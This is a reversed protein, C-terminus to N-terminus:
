SSWVLNSSSWRKLTSRFTNQVSWQQHQGFSKRFYKGIQSWQSIESSSFSLSLTLQIFTIFRAATKLALGGHLEAQGGEGQGRSPHPVPQQRRTEQDESETEEEWTPLATPPQTEAQVEWAFKFNKSNKDADGRWTSGMPRAAQFVCITLCLDRWWIGLAPNKGFFHVNMEEAGSTLTCSFYTKIAWVDFDLNAM